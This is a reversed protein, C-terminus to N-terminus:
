PIGDRMNSTWTALLGQRCIVSSLSLMYFVFIDRVGYVMNATNRMRVRYMPVTRKKDLTDLKILDRIREATYASIKPVLDTRLSAEGFDM